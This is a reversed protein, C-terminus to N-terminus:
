NKVIFNGFKKRFKKGFKSKRSFKALKRTSVLEAFAMKRLAKTQLIGLFYFVLKQQFFINFKCRLKFHFGKDIEDM